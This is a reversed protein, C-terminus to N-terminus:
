LYKVISNNCVRIIVVTILMGSCNAIIDFIDFERNMTLTGQLVEIIIGYILSSLGAFVLAKKYKCKYFTCYTLIVFVAHAGFHFVKDGYNIDMVSSSGLSVFSLITLVIIYLLTVILVIEKRLV